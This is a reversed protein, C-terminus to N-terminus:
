LIQLVKPGWWVNNKNTQKTPPATTAAVRCRGCIKQIIFRRGRFHSTRHFRAYCARTCLLPFYYNGKTQKENQRSSRIIILNTLTGSSRQQVDCLGCVCVDYYIVQNKDSPNKINKIFHTHTHTHHVERFSQRSLPIIFVLM